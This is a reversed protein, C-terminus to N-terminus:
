KPNARKLAETRNVIGIVGGQPDAIVALHGGFYDARPAFLVKGGNASARAVAAAVDDM